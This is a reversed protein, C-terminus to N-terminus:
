RVFNEVGVVGTVYNFYSDYLRGVEDSSLERNYVRVDDVRGNFLNDVAGVRFGRPTVIELSPSDTPGIENGNFYLRHKTGNSTMTIMYWENFEWVQDIAFTKTGYGGMISDIGIGLYFNNGTEEVGVFQTEDDYVNFWYSITGTSGTHQYNTNIYGPDITPFSCAGKVYGEAECNCNGTMTGINEEISSDYVNNDESGDMRLWLVLGKDLADERIEVVGDVNAVTFGTRMPITFSTNYGNTVNFPTYSCYYTRNIEEFNQWVIVQRTQGLITFNYDVKDRLRTGDGIIYANSILSTIKDCPGKLNMRKEYLRIDETRTHAILM